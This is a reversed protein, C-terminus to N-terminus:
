HNVLQWGQASHLHDWFRAYTGGRALLEDHTGRAAVTGDEDLQIINDAHAITDLRHAIVILTAHERLKEIAAVVHAENEVDLASTAEDLLVIPAKKLLARAIAVRQREGGSLGRGGEGVRSQWGGPLRAAIETVGALDAAHRIEEESAGERGVAINAELTDDFLYVDQFVMSLQAMLQAGTQETVPVGGVLVRGEDVDYFRSVVRAITTKGSGSPGVLAVMSGAPVTLSVDRLAPEAGPAYRFTVAELEVTGPSGIVGPAHPEPLPPATLVADLADLLPRRSELGVASETIASLTSSFRLALGIFALAPIPELTGSVAMSGTASILAVVVGQTVMGGLLMGASELWLAQRKTSYAKELAVSLPPFDESRGCSRLAGQCQAYEVIRDALALEEPEHMSRGKRMLGTSLVTIVVFVPVALTLIVGLLPNWFWAAVVIVVAATVRSVLPGFMHAFIEGASMLETSVMRSLRGALPRAFWGLPQKAVQDGTLRHISRLFDLAVAYNARSQAYNLAFSAASLAALVWLWGATGLGWVPADEALASIAPLLSALALGEVLGVVIGVALAPRMREPRSIMRSMRPVIDILPLNM